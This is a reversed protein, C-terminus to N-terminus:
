AAGRMTDDPNDPDADANGNTLVGLADLVRQLAAADNTAVAQRLQVMISALETRLTDGEEQTEALWREYTTNPDLADGRKLQFYVDRPTLGRLDRASALAVIDAAEMQTVIFRDNLEVRVDRVDEPTSATGIWWAHIQLARELSMAVAGAATQLTADDGSFQMEKATGSEAVNKEQALLLRGVAIAMDKKKDDIATKIETGAQGNTQVYTLASQQETTVLAGGGVQSVDDGAADPQMKRFGWGHLVTGAGCLHLLQELDASNRFAALILEVLYSFPPTPIQWLPGFPSCPTAPVFALPQGRRTPIPPQEFVPLEVFDGTRQGNKDRAKRFLRHRLFGLPYAAANRQLADIQEATINARTPTAEFTLEVVRFQEVCEPVFEDGSTEEVEECFRVQSLVPSGKLMAFRFDVVSEDPYFRAFPRDLLESYSTLLVGFGTTLVTRLTEWALLEATTGNATINTLHPKMADPVDFVPPKKFVLGCLKGVLPGAFPLLVARYLYNAYEDIQEGSSGTVLRQGPLRPLYPSSSWSAVSGGTSRHRRKVKRPGALVDQIQVWEPLMEAIQPHRTTVPM